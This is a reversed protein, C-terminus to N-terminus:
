RCPRTHRLGFGRRHLAGKPRSSSELTGCPGSQPVGADPEDVDTALAQLPGSSVRRSIAAPETASLPATSSRALSASCTPWNPLATSARGTSASWTRKRTRNRKPQKGCLKGKAKAVRMGERTRLRILDSEFEAVMALVNFLLRGVPDHPDYM